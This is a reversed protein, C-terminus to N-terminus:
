CIVSLTIETPDLPATLGVTKIRLQTKSKVGSNPQGIIVAGYEVVDKASANWAFDATPLEKEFKITYDGVSNRTVSTVNGKAKIAGSSGSFTVWARCCYIPAEGSINLTAKVAIPAKKPTLITADDTIGKALEDTAVKATGQIEETAQKTKDDVETKSYVSLNARSQEKNELDGLNESKKLTNANIEAQSKGSATDIVADTTVGPNLNINASNWVDENKKNQVAISVLPEACFLQRPAGNKAIYGNRTRAPNAAPITLEADYFIEIPSNIPNANVKGIFVFGADLPSGDTDSYIPFPTSVRNSM